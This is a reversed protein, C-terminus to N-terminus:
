KVGAEPREDVKPGLRADLEERIIKGVEWRIIKIIVGVVEDSLVGVGALPMYYDRGHEDRAKVYKFPKQQGVVPLDKDFVSPDTISM